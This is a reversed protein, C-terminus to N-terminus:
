SLEKFLDEGLGNPSSSIYNKYNKQTQNQTLNLNLKLQTLIANIQFVHSLFSNSEYQICFITNYTLYAFCLHLIFVFFAVDFLM